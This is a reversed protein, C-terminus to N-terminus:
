TLRWMDPRLASILSSCYPSTHASIFRMLVLWLASAFCVVLFFYANLSDSIVSSCKSIVDKSLFRKPDSKARVRTLM